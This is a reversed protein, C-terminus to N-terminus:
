YSHRQLHKSQLLSGQKCAKIFNIDLLVKEYKTKLDEFRKAVSVIDKGHMRKIHKFIDNQFYM